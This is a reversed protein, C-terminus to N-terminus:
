KHPTALYREADLWHARMIAMKRDLQELINPGMFFCDEEAATPALTLQRLGGSKLLGVLETTNDLEDRMFENLLQLDPDGTWNGIKSPTQPQTFRDTNRDRLIQSSWFNHISRMISAYIRLSMGMRHFVEAEPGDLGAMISAVHQLQSRFSDVQPIRPWAGHVEVGGGVLRGGHWDSYDMRAENEHINFVHPLFYSEEDPTLQQPVAVLPRTIHRMSVGVYNGTFRPFAANKLAYAEQLTVFAELLKDCSSEGVWKACLRRVFALRNMLGYAPAQLFEDVVEIVKASVQPLEHWRSYNSGFGMFVTRVDPNKWKEMAATIAVPNFIGVVPNDIISGVSIARRDLRGLFFDDGTLTSIADNEAKSFNGVLHIDVKHGLGKRVADLIGGVRQTISRGRCHEPGNPGSYLWDNWCIGSGADNTSIRLTGLDPVDKSLELFMAALLERSEPHDLCLAYAEQRSRRPHDVRPGRLHPYAAFFEEPLFYPEHVSFSAGLGMEQLVKACDRLHQRNARVYDMNMFPVLQPPPFFKHMGAHCSTYEHWPSGGPPVEHFGKGAQSSLSMQVQGHKKLAAAQAALETFEGATRVTSSVVFARQQQSM